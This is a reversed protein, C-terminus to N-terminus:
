KRLEVGWRACEGILGTLNTVRWEGNKRIEYTMSKYVNKCSESYEGQVTVTPVRDLQNAFNQIEDTRRQENYRRTSANGGSTWFYTNATVIMPIDIVVAHKRAFNEAGRRTKYTKVGAVTQVTFTKERKNEIVNKM